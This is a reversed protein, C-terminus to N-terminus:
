TLEGAAHTKPDSAARRASAGRRATWVTVTLPIGPLHVPAAATLGHQRLWGLVTEDAFGLWRHAHDERLSEVDHQAFDAVLLRGGPRLVRVAEAIADAPDELYHLVQHLVAVDATQGPLPLQYLDGQRIQWNALGTRELNSRAVELMERSQDIGLARKARPALLSLIRGTGTGLDLVTDLPGDPLLSLLAEEVESDAIHLARIQDWRAANAAFYASARAARSQKLSELREQDLAIQPDDAPVLDALLRGLDAGEGREALRFYAFTGERFRDLLGADCLLKLHRSVRPQSQGLIQTLDRVSLEGQACLVLIRMRTPEAAAKLAFLLREM